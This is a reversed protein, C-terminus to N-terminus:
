KAGSSQFVEAWHEPDFFEATFQSALDAYKFDPPYNEKVFKQVSDIAAKTHFTGDSKGTRWYYWFWEALGNTGVGVFSPVSFIGWHIFIGIKGDDYWQPIPRKELSEWTAEYHEPPPKELLNGKVHVNQARAPFPQPVENNVQRKVRNHQGRTDVGPLEESAARQLCPYFMFFQVSLIIAQISVLM